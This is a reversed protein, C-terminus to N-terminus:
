RFIFFLDLGSLLWGIYWFLHFWKNSLSMWTSKWIKFGEHMISDEVRSTATSASSMMRKTQSHSNSQFPGMVYRCLWFWYCVFKIFLNNVACNFCFNHYIRHGVQITEDDTIMKGCRFCKEAIDSTLSLYKKIWVNQGNTLSWDWREYCAQCYFYDKNIPDNFYASTIPLNCSQCRLFLVKFTIWSSRLTESSVVRTCRGWDWGSWFAPPSQRM